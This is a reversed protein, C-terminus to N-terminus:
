RTNHVFNGSSRGINIYGDANFPFDVRRLDGPIPRNEDGYRYLDVPERIKKKYNLTFQNNDELDILLAMNYNM